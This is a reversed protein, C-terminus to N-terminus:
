CSLLWLVATLVLAVSAVIWVKRRVPLSEQLFVFLSGAEGKDLWFGHCRGCRDATVQAGGSEFRVSRMGTDCRPCPLRGERGADQYFASREATALATKLRAADAEAPREALVLQELEGEDLWKGGCADCVDITASGRVVQRLATEDRPCDM